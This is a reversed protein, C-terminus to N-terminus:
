NKGEIEDFSLGTAKSIDSLSLGMTRLNRAIEIKSGAIVNEIDTAYDQLFHQRAENLAHIQKNQNFSLYAGYSDEVVPHNRLLVKM